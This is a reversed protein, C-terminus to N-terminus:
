VNSEVVNSLHKALSELMAMRMFVGNKVQALIYSQKGDAVDNDIEVGRNIPGPHMVMADPKAWALSTQTIAYAAHYNHLNLTESAQLREKQVRLTIVVDADRLGEQLSTTIKVHAPKTKPHWIEPAVLILEGVGVIGFLAQLSNSVRSHLIDGVIAIKLRSLDPKHQVITLLDLLAQSPHEHTGDGANLLHVDAACAEVLAQPLGNQSHRLVFIQIGMAYLNQLMDEIMEGKTVSSHAIDINVVRIGLNKAAMEFSIRTRTSPEYFLNAMTVNSFCPYQQMSKFHTARELLHMIESHSLQNITLFHKM